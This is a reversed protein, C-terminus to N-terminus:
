GSGILTVSRGIDVIKFCEHLVNGRSKYEARFWGHRPHVFTIVARVPKIDDDTNHFEKKYLFCPIFAVQRGVLRNTIM